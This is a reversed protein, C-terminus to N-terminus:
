VASAVGLARAVRELAARQEAQRATMYGRSTVISTHGMLSTVVVDAAGTESFATAATNRLEHVTWPRGSPHAVQAADQMAKFETRDDKASRPRLTGDRKDLQTWLLGWPNPPAVMLWGRVLEALSDPLPIAREGAVSKPQTLHYGDVLHRAVFGDPVLFGKAPDHRDRWRLEQLQWSISLLGSDPDFAERTLGLVEGQRLGLTLALSWRLGLDPQRRAIALLQAVQDLPIAQRDHKAKPPAPVVLVREPITYGEVLAARLMQQTKKHTTHISTPSLGASRQADAVARLDAPTLRDLRRNGITTIVWRRLPVALAAYAKPRLEHERIQLWTECWKKVTTNTTGGAGRELERERDRKRRLVEAKTPATVTVRRRKGDATWGAEIAAVWRGDSRQYVSGSGYDRRSTAAMAAM